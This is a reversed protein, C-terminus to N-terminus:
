LSAALSLADLASNELDWAADGDAQVQAASTVAHMIGGATLDGGKIFHDLIEAQQAESYRLRGSVLEVTKAADRVAHGTKEELGRVAKEVYAPTLFAAVADRAKATVLALQRDQTDGSWRIGEEMREGLHVARVVDRTITMGNACVQAVLRPTITAAGCGTESNTVAFGAFVVPNDTGRAGTFPSTYGSLLAPALVQVAECRVRVYMRRETLDCSDIVVPQRAARIGDFVAMLTDLHDITKYGDSVWARAVGTGGDEGRLCRVLFSRDDGALWGNVNADFLGPRSGRMKRLYAVPIGLKDAIGADCVETPRYAGSSMSVGDRGLVPDTGDLIILGGESRIAAAPAVVDIKRAQQERLLAVLDEITANRATLATLALGGDNATM